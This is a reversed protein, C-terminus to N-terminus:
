KKSLDEANLTEPQAEVSTDGDSQKDDQSEENQAQAQKARADQKAQKKAQKAAVDIVTRGKYTGTSLNMKHRVHVDGDQDKGLRQASTRHHSRRRGAAGKTIRM